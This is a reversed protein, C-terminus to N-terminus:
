FVCLHLMQVKNDGGGGGSSSSSSSNGAMSNRDTYIFEALVRFLGLKDIKVIYVLLVLTIAMCAFLIWSATVREWTNSPILASVTTTIAYSLLIAVIMFSFKVVTDNLENVAYVTSNFEIQNQVLPSKPNYIM